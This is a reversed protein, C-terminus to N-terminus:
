IFYLITSVKLPLFSNYKPWCVYVLRRPHSSFNLIWEHFFGWCIPYQYVVLYYQYYILIRLIILTMYSLGLTLMISLLSRKFAKGRLAPVFCPHVSEGSRNLLTRSTRTLSILSSFSIFNDLNFFSSTFNDSYPSSRIM